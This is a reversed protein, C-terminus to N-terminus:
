RAPGLVYTRTTVKTESKAHVRVTRTSDEPIVATVRLRLGGDSEEVEAVESAGRPYVRDLHGKDFQIDVGDIRSGALVSFELVRSGNENRSPPEFRISACRALERDELKFKLDRALEDGVQDLKAGLLSSGLVEEDDSTLFPPIIWSQVMPWSLFDNRELFDVAVPDAQRIHVPELKASDRLMKIEFDVSLASEYSSDSIFLGGVWTGIWLVSSLVAGGTAESYEYRFPETVRPVVLLDADGIDEGPMVAVVESACDLERLREVLRVQMANASWEGTHGEPIEFPEVAIRYPIRPAERVADFSDTSACGILGILAILWGVRRPFSM